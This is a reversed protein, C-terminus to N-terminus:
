YRSAVKNNVDVAYAIHMYESKTAFIEAPHMGEDQWYTGVNKHWYRMCSNSLAKSHNGSPLHTHSIDTEGVFDDDTAYAFKFDAATCGHRLTFEIPNYQANYLRFFEEVQEDTLSFLKRIIKAPKGRVRRERSESMVDPIYSLQLPNVTSPRLDHLICISLIDEYLESYHDYMVNLGNQIRVRDIVSRVLRYIEVNLKIKSDPCDSLVRRQSLFHERAHYEEPRGSYGMAIYADDLKNIVNQIREDTVFIDETKLFATTRATLLEGM